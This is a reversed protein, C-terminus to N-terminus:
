LEDNRRIEKVIDHIVGGINIDTGPDEGFLCDYRAGINKFDYGITAYGEHISM